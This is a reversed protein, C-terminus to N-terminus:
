LLQDLPASKTGVLNSTFPEVNVPLRPLFSTVCEYLQIITFPSNIYHKELWRQSSSHPILGAVKLSVNNPNYHITRHILLSIRPGKKLAEMLNLIDWWWVITREHKRVQHLFFTGQGPLGGRHDVVAPIYSLGSISVRTLVAANYFLLLLIRILIVTTRQIRINSETHCRSGM